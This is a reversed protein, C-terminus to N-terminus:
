DEQIKEITKRLAGKESPFVKEMGIRILTWLENGDMKDLDWSTPKFGAVKAAKQM